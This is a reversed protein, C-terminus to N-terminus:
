VHARGIKGWEVGSGALDPRTFPHLLTPPMGLAGAAGGGQRCRGEPFQLLAGEEESAGEAEGNCGAWGSGASVEVDKFYDYIQRVYVSFFAPDAADGKDMDKVGAPIAAVPESEIAMHSAMASSPAMAASLPRGVAAMPAAMAPAGAGSVAGAQLPGLPPLLQITFGGVKNCTSGM